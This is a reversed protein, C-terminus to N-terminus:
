KVVKMINKPNPMPIVRPSRQPVTPSTTPTKVPATIGNNKPDPMPIVRPSRQPVSPTTTPAKVPAPAAPASMSMHKDFDEKENNEWESTKDEILLNIEHAAKDQDSVVLQVFKHLEKPPLKILHEYIEIPSNNKKVNSKNVVKLFRRWLEPGIQILKPEDQIKDAYQYISKIDEDSLEDSSKEQLQKLYRLEFIGKVLEQVLVIFVPSKAVMKIDGNKAQEPKVSGVASGALNMQEMNMLWYLHHSGIAVKSYIDVLEPSIKKIESEIEDFFHATLYAHVSAGQAFANSTIRKNAEDLLKPSLAKMEEPTLPETKNVEVDNTLKASLESKDVKMLKAVASIALQELKGKHAHELQMMKHFLAPLKEQKVDFQKSLSKTHKYSGKNLQEGELTLVPHRGLAHEPHKPLDKWFKKNAPHVEKNYENNDSEAATKLNTIKCISCLESFKHM